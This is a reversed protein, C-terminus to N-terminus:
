ADEAILPPRRRCCRRWLGLVNEAETFYASKYEEMDDVPGQCASVAELLHKAYKPFFADAEDDWVTLGSLRQIDNNERLTATGGHSDESGMGTKM